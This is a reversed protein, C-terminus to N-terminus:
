FKCVVSLILAPESLMQVQPLVSVLSILQLSSALEVIFLCM